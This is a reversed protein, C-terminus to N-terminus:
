VISQALLLGGIVGGRGALGPTLVPRPPFYGASRRALESEVRAHIGGVAGIGGGLVICRPALVATIALLGTALYWVELDWLPDDAALQEAPRGARARLATGSALGEFCRGHFPCVGAFTDGEIIPVLLHGMEPHPWGRLPRGNVIAGGGIGTGVTVYVMPDTGRGAGLTAEALATVNVDTDWGVPVALEARLRGLVDTNAWHPKSTTTIRGYTGSRPDCDIPGFSGVGVAVLRGQGRPRRFFEVVRALTEDPTTTPFRAEDLLHDPDTGIACVFKTGGGEVGGFLRQEVRGGRHRSKAQAFTTACGHGLTM